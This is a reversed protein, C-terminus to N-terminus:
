VIRMPQEAIESGFFSRPNYVQHKHHVLCAWSVIIEFGISQTVVSNCGGTEIRYFKSIFSIRGLLSKGKLIKNKSRSIYM